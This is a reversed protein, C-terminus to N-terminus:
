AQQGPKYVDLANGLILGIKLLIKWIATSNLRGCIAQLVGGTSGSACRIMSSNPRRSAGRGIASCGPHFGPRTTTLRGDKMAARRPWATTEAAVAHISPLIVAANM